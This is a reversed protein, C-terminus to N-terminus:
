AYKKYPTILAIIAATPQVNMASFGERNNYMSGLFLLIANVLDEPLRGDKELDELPREIKKEINNEASSAYMEILVDDENHDVYLHKKCLELTLYRMQSLIHALASARV